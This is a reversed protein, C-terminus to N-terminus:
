PIERMPSTVKLVAERVAEQTARGVSTQDFNVKDHRVMFLFAQSRTIGTGTGRGSILPGEENKLSVEVEIRVEVRASSFPGLGVRSRSKSFGTINVTGVTDCGLARGSALLGDPDIGQAGTSLALSVLENIRETIEPNDEVPAYLGTDYLEQAALQAIGRAILLNNLEDEPTDNTVGVVALRPLDETKATGASFVLCLLVFFSGLLYRNVPFSRAM